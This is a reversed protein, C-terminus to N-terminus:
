YYERVHGLVKEQDDNRRRQVAHLASTVPGQSGKPRRRDSDSALSVDFANCAELAKPSMGVDPSIILEAVM